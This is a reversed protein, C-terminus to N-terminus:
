ESHAARKEGIKVKFIDCSTIVGLTLEEERVPLCPLDQETMRALATELDEDPTCDARGSVLKTVLDNMARSQATTESLRLNAIDLSMLLGVLRGEEVVPVHRFRGQIMQVLMDRAGTEPTACVPAPTMASAVSRSLAEPGAAQIARVLDRESIIGRVAGEADMVVLAGVNLASVKELAESLPAEPTITNAEFDFTEPLIQGLKATKAGLLEGVNM